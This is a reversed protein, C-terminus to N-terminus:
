TQVDAVSLGPPEAVGTSPTATSPVLDPVKVVVRRVLDCKLDDIARGGIYLPELPLDDKGSCVSHRPIGGPILRLNPIGFVPLAPVNNHRQKM